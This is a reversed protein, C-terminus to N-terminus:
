CALSTARMMSANTKDCVSSSGRSRAYALAARHPQTNHHMPRFNPAALCIASSFASRTRRRYTGNFLVQVTPTLTRRQANRAATPVRLKVACIGAQVLRGGAVEFRSLKSPFCMGLLGVQLRNDGSCRGASIGSSWASSVGSYSALVRRCDFSVNGSRLERLRKHYGLLM